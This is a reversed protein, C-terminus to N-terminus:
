APAASLALREGRRRIARVPEERDGYVFRTVVTQLADRIPLAALAAVGTALLSTASPSAPAIFRGMPPSPVSNSATGIVAGIAAATVVYVVIVAVTMSGYVLSRRIVVDFDFAGHR